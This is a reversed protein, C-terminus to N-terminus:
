IGDLCKVKRQLKITIYHIKALVSVHLWSSFKRQIKLRQAEMKSWINCLIGGSKYVM